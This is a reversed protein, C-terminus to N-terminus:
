AGYPQWDNADPNTAITSTTDLTTDAPDYSAPKLDATIGTYETEIPGDYLGIALANAKIQAPTLATSHLKLDYIDGDYSSNGNDWQGIRSSNSELSLSNSLTGLISYIPVGNLFISTEVGNNQIVVYILSGVPVNIGTDIRLQGDSNHHAILRFNGNIFGLALRNFKTANTYLGGNFLYFSSAGGNFETVCEISDFSTTADPLSIYQDTVFNFTAYNSNLIAGNNTGNSTGVSDNVNGNLKYWHTAMGAAQSADNYNYRTFKSYINGGLRDHWVKINDQVRLELALAEIEQTDLTRNFIRIKDVSGNISIDPNVSYFNPVKGILLNDSLTVLGTSITSSDILVGNLYMQVLGTLHNYQCVIHTQGVPRIGGINLPVGGFQMVLGDNQGYNFVRFRGDQTSSSEQMFICDYVGNRWTVNVWISLAFSSLNSLANTTAGDSTTGNFSIATGIVSVTTAGGYLTGNNTGLEDVLVLGNVTNCNYFAKLLTSPKKKYQYGVDGASTVTVDRDALGIAQVNADNVDFQAYWYDPIGGEKLARMINNYTFM